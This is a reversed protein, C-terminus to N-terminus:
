WWPLFLTPVHLSSTWTQLPLLATFHGVAFRRWWTMPLVWRWAPSEKWTFKMGSQIRTFRSRAMAATTRWCISLKRMIFSFRSAFLSDTTFSLNFVEIFQVQVEFLPEALCKEKAEERRQHIGQFLHAAARPIIGVSEVVYSFSSDFSSGM